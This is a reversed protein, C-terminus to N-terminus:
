GNARRQKARPGYLREALNKVAQREPWTLRDDDLGVVFIGLECWGRRKEAEADMGSAVRRGLRSALQQDAGSM